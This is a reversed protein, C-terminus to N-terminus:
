ADVILLLWQIVLAHALREVIRHVLVGDDLVHELPRAYYGLTGHKGAGPAGVRSQGWIGVIGYLRLLEESLGAVRVTEGGGHPHRLGAGAHLRRHGHRDDHLRVEARHAHVHRELG